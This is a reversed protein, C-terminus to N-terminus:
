RRDKYETLFDRLAHAIQMMLQNNKEAARRLGEIDALLKSFDVPRYGSHSGFQQAEKETTM